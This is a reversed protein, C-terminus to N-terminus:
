SATANVFALYRRRNRIRWLLLLLPMIVAILVYWLSLYLTYHLDGTFPNPYRWAFGAGIRAGGRDLHRYDDVDEFKGGQIRECYIYAEGVSEGSLAHMVDIWIGSKFLDLQIAIRSSTPSVVISCHMWQTVIIILLIAVVGASLLRTSRMRRRHHILMFTTSGGNVNCRGNPM